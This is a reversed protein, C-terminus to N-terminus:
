PSRIRYFRSPHNTWEADSFHSWGDTFMNTSVPAWIPNALTTSAEVVVPINTAWSIIFGFGNTRIGFVPSTTLVVPYPLEWQATPRGGITTGWGSTGPLYYVTVSPSEHFPFTEFRADGEFYIGTL